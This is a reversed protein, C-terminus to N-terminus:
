FIFNEQVGVTCHALIDPKRLTLSLKAISTFEEKLSHSLSQLADEILFFQKKQVSQIIHNTVDAYNIFINQAYHYNIMCDIVVQQPTIRENELIGIITDFTLKEILITM